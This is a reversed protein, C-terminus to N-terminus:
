KTKAKTAKPTMNKFIVMVWTLLKGVINEEPLKITEPRVNLDTIQKSNIKHTIYSLPRAENKQM